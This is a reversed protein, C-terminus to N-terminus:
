RSRRPILSVSGRRFRILLGTRNFGGSSDPITADRFANNAIIRCLLFSLIIWKMGSFNEQFGPPQRV